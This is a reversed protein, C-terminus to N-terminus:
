RAGAALQRYVFASRAIHEGSKTGTETLRYLITVTQNDVQLGNFTTSATKM